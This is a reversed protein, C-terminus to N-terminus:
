INTYICHVESAQSMRYAFGCPLHLSPQAGPSVQDCCCQADLGLWPGQQRGVGQAPLVPDPPLNLGLAAPCQTIPLIVLVSQSVPLLHGM